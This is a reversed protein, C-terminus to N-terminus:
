RVLAMKRFAVFAGAQLRYFYIGAAVERAEFRAQYVGAPQSENVLVAVSRGLMDFVEWKVKSYQPLAYRILTAPNFPNPYNQELQYTAPLPSEQEEDVSTLVADTRMALASMGAFSMQGSRTGAGTMTDIRIFIIQEQLEM